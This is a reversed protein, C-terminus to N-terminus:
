ISRSDEEANGPQCSSAWASPCHQDSSGAYPEIYMLQKFADITVRTNQFLPNGVFGLLGRASFQGESDSTLSAQHDHVIYPGLAFSPVRVLDYTRSGGLMAGTREGLKALALGNASVTEELLAFDEAMGTDIIVEGHISDNLVADAYILSEVDLELIASAPHVDAQPDFQGPPYFTLQKHPQDFTVVYQHLIPSGLIGDLGYLRLLCQLAVSQGDGFQAAELDSFPVQLGSGAEGISMRRCVGAQLQTITGHGHGNMNLVPNLGAAAAADATMMMASAGSDFIFHWTKASDPFTVPVIFYGIGFEVPVTVPGALEQRISAQPVRALSFPLEPFATLKRTHEVALDVSKIRQGQPGTISDIERQPILHNRNDLEYFYESHQTYCEPDLPALRQETSSILLYAPDAPNANLTVKIPVLGVPAFNCVYGSTDECAFTFSSWYPEDLYDGDALLSAAAAAPQDEPTLKYALNSNTGAWFGASCAYDYYKLEGFQMTVLKRDKLYYATYVGHSGNHQVTGSVKLGQQYLELNRRAAERHAAKIATGDVAQALTPGALLLWALATLAALYHRRNGTHIHAV